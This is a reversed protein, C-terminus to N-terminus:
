HRGPAQALARKCCAMGALGSQEQIEKDESSRHLALPQRQLKIIVPHRGAGAHGDVAVVDVALPLRGRRALGELVAIGRVRVVQDADELVGVALIDLRREVGRATGVLGPPQHRRRNAGLHEVADRLDDRLALFLERTVHRALHPLDQVLRAAVHLLGDVHGEVHRALSAAHEPVRHRRLQPVLERHRNALRKADTTKL